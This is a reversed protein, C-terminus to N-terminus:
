KTAKKNPPNHKRIFVKLCEEPILRSCILYQKKPINNVESKPTVALKIRGMKPVEFYLAM